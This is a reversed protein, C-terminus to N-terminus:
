RSVARKEDSLRATNAGVNPSEGSYRCWVVDRTNLSGGSCVRTRRIMVPASVGLAM